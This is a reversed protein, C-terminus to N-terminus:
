IVNHFVRVCANRHSIIFICRCIMSGLATSNKANMQRWVHITTVKDCKWRLRKWIRTPCDNAYPSQHNLASFFLLFDTSTSFTPLSRCYFTAICWLKYKVFAATTVGAQRLLIFSIIKLQSIANTITRQANRCSVIFKALLLFHFLLCNWETTTNKNEEEAECNVSQRRLLKTSTIIASKFSLSACHISCLNWMGHRNQTCESKELLRIKKRNLISTFVCVVVVENAM